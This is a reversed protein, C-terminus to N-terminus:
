PKTVNTVASPAMQFDLKGDKDLTIKISKGDPIAYQLKNQGVTLEINSEVSQKKEHPPQNVAWGVAFVAGLALLGTIGLQFGHSWHSFVCRDNKRAEVIMQDIKPSFNVGVAEMM